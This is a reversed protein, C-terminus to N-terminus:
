RGPDWRVDVHESKLGRFWHGVRVYGKKTVGASDRATVYFVVQAKTTGLWFPGQHWWRSEYAVLTYGNRIAWKRLNFRSRTVQYFASGLAGAAVLIFMPVLVAM